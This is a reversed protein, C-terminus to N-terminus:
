QRLRSEKGFIQPTPGQFLEVIWPQFVQITVNLSMGCSFLPFSESLVIYFIRSLIHYCMIGLRTVLCVLATTVRWLGVSELRVLPAPQGSRKTTERLVKMPTGHRYGSWVFFVDKWIRELKDNVLWGVMPAIYFRAMAWCNIQWARAASVRTRDWALRYTRHDVFYASWSGGTLIVGDISWLWKENSVM